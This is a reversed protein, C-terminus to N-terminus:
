ISILIMTGWDTKVTEVKNDKVAQVIHKIIDKSDILCIEKSITVNDM